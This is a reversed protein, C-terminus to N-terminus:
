SPLADCDCRAARSAAIERPLLDHADVLVLYLPSGFFDFALDLFDNALGYAVLIEFLLSVNLLVDTRDLGRYAVGFLVDLFDYLRGLPLRNIRRAAKRPSGSVDIAL